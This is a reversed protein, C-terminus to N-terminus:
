LAVILPWRLAPVAGVEGVGECWSTWLSGRRGPRGSHDAMSPLPHARVRGARRCPEGGELAVEAIKGAVVAAVPSVVPEAM